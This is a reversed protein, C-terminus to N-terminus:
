YFECFGFRLVCKKKKLFDDFMILYAEGCPHLAPGIYSFGDIYDV